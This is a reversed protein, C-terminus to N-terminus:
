SDKEFPNDTGLRCATNEHVLKYVPQVTLTLNGPWISPDPDSLNVSYNCPCM